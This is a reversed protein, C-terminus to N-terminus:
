HQTTADAAPTTDDPDHRGVKIVPEMSRLVEDPL